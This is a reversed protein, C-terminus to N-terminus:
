CNSSNWIFRHCLWNSRRCAATKKTLSSQTKDVKEKLKTLEQTVFQKAGERDSLMKIEGSKRVGKDVPRLGDVQSAVLMGLAGGYGLQPQCASVTERGQDGRKLTASFHKKAKM